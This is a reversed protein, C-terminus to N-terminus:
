QKTSDACMNLVQLLLQLSPENTLTHIASGSSRLETGLVWMMLNMVVQLKLDLSDSVELRQPCWSEGM